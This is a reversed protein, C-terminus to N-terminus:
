GLYGKFHKAAEPANGDRGELYKNTTSIDTHRAQNRATVIGESNALDRIGSDKLSYFQYEAPWKLEKRIMGWRKNFQNYLGQTKSPRFDRGFIYYEGPYDFIRNEIMRLIVTKNLAVYGDRKNKSIESSIFIRQEKISIDRIRIQRLENPRIFTYYEMMVALLFDPDKDKLHDFLRNLSQRDISKRIKSQERLREIGNVPNEPIYKRELLYECFGALWNRYNNRTRACVDREDLLWDLFDTIIERNFQCVYKPPRSLTAFFENLINVATQYTQITKKRGSKRIRDMYKNLCDEITTYSRDTVNETAWPRWGKSLKVTLEAILLKAYERRERKNPIGDLHYKKRKAKGDTYDICYFDVYCKSTEHYVPLTYGLIDLKAYSSKKACMKKSM